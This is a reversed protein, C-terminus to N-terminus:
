GFLFVHPRNFLAKPDYGYVTSGNTGNNGNTLPNSGMIKKYAVLYNSLNKERNFNSPATTFHEIIV